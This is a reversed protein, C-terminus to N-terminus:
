WTPAVSATSNRAGTEPPHADGNAQLLLSEIRSLLKIRQEIPRRVVSRHHTENPDGPRHVLVPILDFRQDEFMMWCQCFSRKLFYRVIGGLPEFYTV